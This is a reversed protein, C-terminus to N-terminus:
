NEISKRIIDKTKKSINLAHLEERAPNVIYFQSHESSNIRVNGSHVSIAFNFQRTKKGSSSQYDFSGIYRKIESIELGTEEKVERILGDIISEGSEVVGSPLEVTGGRFEEPIRKLLLINGDQFFVVAGVVVKRIGDKKLKNDLEELLKVNINNKYM